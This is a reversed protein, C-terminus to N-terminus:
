SGTDLRILLPIKGTQLQKAKLELDFKAEYLQTLLAELLDIAFGIYHQSAVDLRHAADDGIPKLQKLGDIISEPIRNNDKLKTIKGNLSRAETDTIGEHVCIGELLARIGMSCIIYLGHKYSTIIEEYASKLKKDIHLFKKPLRDSTNKRPPHYDTSYVEGSDDYMGACHYMEVLTGTDCGLCVWLSYKYNEYWGRVVSGDPLYEPESYDRTHQYKMEHHTDNRCTNCFIKQKLIM